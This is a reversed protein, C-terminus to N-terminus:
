RKSRRYVTPKNNSKRFSSRRAPPTIHRPAVHKNRIPGKTIHKTPGQYIAAQGPYHGYLYPYQYWYNNYRYLLYGDCDYVWHEQYWFRPCRCHNSSCYPPPPNNATTQYKKSIPIYQAIVTEYTPYTSISQQVCSTVSISFAIFFVITLTANRM